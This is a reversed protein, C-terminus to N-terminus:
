IHASVLNVLLLTGILYGGPLIIPIERGFLHMGVVLWQRFYHAQAAYLGVDVQALTGVFVLVISFALLVVTLKLSTFVGVIKKILM